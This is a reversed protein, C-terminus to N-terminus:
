ECSYHTHWQPNRIHIPPLMNRFFFVFSFYEGLRCCCFRCCTLMCLLDDGVRVHVVFSHISSHLCAFGVFPVGHMCVRVWDGVYLFVCACMCMCASLCEHWHWCRFLFTVLSPCLSVSLSLRSKFHNQINKHLFYRYIYTHWVHLYGKGISISHLLPLARTHVLTEQVVSINFIQMHIYSLVFIFRWCYLM